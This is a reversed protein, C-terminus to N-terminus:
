KQSAKVTQIQRANEKEKQAQKREQWWEVIKFKLKIATGNDTYTLLQYEEETLLTQLQEKGSDSVSVNKTVDVYCLPPFMVCWWNAGEGEGIVIRLAEYEGPPFIVDGYAKTPFYDKAMVASVPYDYGNEMVVSQAYARIDEMHTSLFARTDEVSNGASLAERFAELVSNRVKEKLAQDETSDSNALVHFRIVNRAIDDQITESYARTYLTIATAMLTGFVLATALIKLERKIINKTIM